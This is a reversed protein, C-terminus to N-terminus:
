KGHMAWAPQIAAFAQWHSAVHGWAENFIRYGPSNSGDHDPESGAAGDEHTHQLWDWCFERLAKGKLPHPFPITDKVDKVWFLVLTKRKKKDRKTWENSECVHDIVAYAKAEKDDATAIQMALDFTVRSRATIDFAFNDMCEFQKTMTKM